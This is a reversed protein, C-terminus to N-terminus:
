FFDIIKLILLPTKKFDGVRRRGKVRGGELKFICRKVILVILVTIDITPHQFKIQM